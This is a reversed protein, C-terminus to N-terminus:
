IPRRFTAMSDKLIRPNSGNHQQWVCNWQIVKTFLYKFVSSHFRVGNTLLEKIIWNIVSKLRCELVICISLWLVCVAGISYLLQMIVYQTRQVRCALM